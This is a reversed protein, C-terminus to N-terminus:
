DAVKQVDMAIDALMLEVTMMATSWVIDTSMHELCSSDFLLSSRPSFEEDGAWLILVITISYFYTKLRAQNYLEM